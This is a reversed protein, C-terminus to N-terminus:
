FACVCASCPSTQLSACWLLPGARLVGVGGAGGVQQAYVHVLTRRAEEVRVAATDAAAREEDAGGGGSGAPGALLLALELCREHCEVAEDARRLREYVLGLACSSELEGELWRSDRAAQPRPPSTTADAPPSLMSCLSVGPGPYTPPISLTCQHLIQARGGGVFHSRHQMRCAPTHM